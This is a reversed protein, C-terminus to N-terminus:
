CVTLYLVYNIIYILYLFQLYVDRWLSCSLFIEFSIYQIRQKTIRFNYSFVKESVFDM